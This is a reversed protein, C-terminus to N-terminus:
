TDTHSKEVASLRLSLNELTTAVMKSGGNLTSMQLELTDNTDKIDKVTNQLLSIDKQLSSSPGTSESASELKMVRVNLGKLSEAIRELLINTDQLQEIINKPREYGMGRGESYPQSSPFDPEYNSESPYRPDYKQGYGRADYSQPYEKDRGEYGPNQAPPYRRM